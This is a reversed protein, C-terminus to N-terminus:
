PLKLRFFRYKSDSNLLVQNFGGVVAPVNTVILWNTNNLTSNEQLVFDSFTTPWTILVLNPKIFGINLSPLSYYSLHLRFFQSSTVMPISLQAVGNSIYPKTNVTVWNTGVGTENKQLVYSPSPIPSAWSILIYNTSTLVINLRPATLYIRLGDTGNALFSYTGATAVGNAFGTGGNSYNGDKAKGLQVPHIPDSIDCIQLGGFFNALYVYNDRVSIGLTNGEGTFHGIGIPNTPNSIDYVRLGDYSNALFALNGAVTVSLANGDYISGYGVAILNTPNSIDFVRLGDGSNAVYAFHGMLAVGMAEGSFNNTSHGVNVPNAPNSVDYVRLGDTGNALYVFNNSVALAMASGGFNSANHGVNVPLAPNSVDYIRFGDSGNALYGFKGSVSVNLAHGGDNIHGVNVPNVPNSVDYIRLGDSYNALYAYNGATAVGYANGGNGGNSIHSIPVLTTQSFSLSASGFWAALISFIPAILRTSNV